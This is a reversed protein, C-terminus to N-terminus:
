GSVIKKLRISRFEIKMPKGQHLQLGLLGETAMGKSDEDIFAAMVYGNIIHLLMNGKAIVHMQNWEGARIRGKLADAEGLTSILKLKRGEAMRSFQGRPALFGRGREEYVMGTYSNAGDLDAQYGKMAWKSVEPVLASRYQIGSNAESSLRFELKLEFDRVAGGKWILFTNSRVVKEPTSEAILSGDEARWFAPDGDWGDLTKGDFISTFGANDDPEAAPSQPFFAFTVHSVSTLATCVAAIVLLHSMVARRKAFQPFM